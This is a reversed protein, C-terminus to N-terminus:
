MSVKATRIGAPSPKTRRRRRKRRRGPQPVDPKPIRVPHEQVVSLAEKADRAFLDARIEDALGEARNFVGGAVLIQMQDCSNVDRILDVLRRTGPVGAPVTGYISLVDPKIKGIFSLVEDNPVGAGLFWVTWGQGEFLDAIIQSGLESSEGEGCVVVMRQGTKPERPIFAHLQDAIMRNIRTAMHETIRSIHNDRFLKDVQDMAPWIISTLLTNAPVGRDMAAFLHERAECRKGAFLHELYQKFLEATTM